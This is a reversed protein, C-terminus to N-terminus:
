ILLLFPGVGFDRAAILVICRQAFVHVVLLCLPQTLSLPDLLAISFIDLGLDIFVSTKIAPVLVFQRFDLFAVACFKRLLGLQPILFEIGLIGVM